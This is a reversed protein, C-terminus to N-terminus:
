GFSPRSAITVFTATLHPPRLARLLRARAM